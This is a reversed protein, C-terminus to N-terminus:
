EKKLKFTKMKTETGKKGSEKWSVQLIYFGKALNSFDQSEIDKGEWITKALLNRLVYSASAKANKVNIKNTFPNPYVSMVSDEEKGGGSSNEAPNNQDSGNEGSSNQSSGSALNITNALISEPVDDIEVLIFDIEKQNSEKLKDLVSDLDEKKQFVICGASYYGIEKEGKARHINIGFDGTESYGPEYTTFKAKDKDPVEYRHVHSKDVPVLADYLNRHKGAKYKYIGPQLIALRDPYTDGSKAAWYNRLDRMLFYIGPSTTGPFIKLNKENEPGMLILADIFENPKQEKLKIRNRLGVLNYKTYDISKKFKQDDLIKKLGDWTLNKDINEFEFDSGPKLGLMIQKAEQTNPTKIGASNMVEVREDTEIDNSTENPDRLLYGPILKQTKLKKVLDQDKSLNAAFDRGV